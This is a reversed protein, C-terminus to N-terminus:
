RGEVKRLFRDISKVVSEPQDVMTMHAADKIIEVDAKQCLQKYRYMTEPRAEDFEGTIFLIPENIRSLDDIRDFNSLTGTATFETPGWMHQYVQSNFKGVGECEAIPEYPWSKRSLHRAYFANTAERYPRAEYDKALEYKVITDQISKPMQALLYKADAIWDKTSLLPSSFIVSRIGQPSKSILYEILFASGCSHGLIHLEDLKLAHRIHDIEDVFREITWLDTNTPRDSNGSGLQDYFIVPRNASLGSLGPIMTCSRSGPGGHLILLPVGDGQGLIEYWIKGGEVDIFGENKINMHCSMIITCALANLFVMRLVTIVKLAKKSTFHYTSPIYHHM